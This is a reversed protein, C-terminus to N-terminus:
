KGEESYTQFSKLKWIDRNYETVARDASFFGACAINSLVKRNWSSRDEYDRLMRDKVEAYSAFDLLTMYRDRYRLEEYLRMLSERHGLAMMQDGAIFDVAERVPASSRYVADPDYDNRQFHGIAEESSIGFFYVNEEGTLEGIEVNAGDRTGLTLAGNLMLKMNGTGSSERSALSIQESIEAAPILREAYTVNFNTVVAMRLFPNVEPDGNVVEQLVLLLHLIDQALIYGPAAKGGFIFNVPRAPLIGRRVELYKRIVYLAALQQRKYEHIRKAQLDFIGEPLLEVGETKRIFATLKEKAKRKIRDLESSVAEDGILESLRELESADLKFGNGIKDCIWGALEPNCSLLWRRFSIGNTKNSFREPYIKYFGKLSSNELIETHSKSVGNVSFCFHVCLYAMRVMRGADIIYVSPDPYRSKVILDLRHIIPVLQPAVEMLDDLQWADLAEAMITHNTYACSGTVVNVAEMFSLAKDDTLVRILEPILLAPHSENIQIVAYDYMKRLDCKRAKMDRLIIQAACSALFYQQYLRLKKGARDSDDPYLFLTLNKGVAEKDFGIGDHVISGDASDIDFLRLKNIGSKYGAISVEYMRATLTRGALRVDFTVETPNVWSEWQMWRDPHMKQVRDEFSQRFLGYHYNLGIGVAPYGLTAISDMYCASLLGLGGCGLAPESEAEFVNTLNKGYGALIEETKRLIGLNILTNKLFRGTLFEASVYYVKKEGSNKEGVELIRKILIMLVLYTENDSCAELPKGFREHALEVLQREMNLVMVDFIMNKYGM